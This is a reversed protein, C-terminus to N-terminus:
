RDDGPDGWNWDEPVGRVPGSGALLMNRHPLPMVKMSPKEYRNKM